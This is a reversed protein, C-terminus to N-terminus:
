ARAYAVIDFARHRREWEWKLWHSAPHPEPPIHGGRFKVWCLTSPRMPCKGGTHPLWTVDDPM